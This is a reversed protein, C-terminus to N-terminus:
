GLAGRTISLVANRQLMVLDQFIYSLYRSRRQERPLVGLKRTLCSLLCDSDERIENLLKEAISFLDKLLFLYLGVTASSVGVDGYHYM